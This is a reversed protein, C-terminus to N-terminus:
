GPQIVVKAPQGSVTGPGAQAGTAGAPGTGGRSGGGNGKGGSGGGGGPGGSGPPGGAGGNGPPVVQPLGGQLLKALDGAPVTVVINGSANVANGGPGGPGGTGGTGGQAGSGGGNGTCGCTRGDGGNGGQGGDGGPGGPQGNGGTGSRTAVIVQYGTPVTVQRTVTIIAMQSPIGSNGTAGPAGQTGTAGRTGNGGGSGAIGASSCQGPAGSQAQGPTPPKSPAPIAAGTAGLINFDGPAGPSGNRTLTECTFQLPTKYCIVNGGNNMTFDSLVVVRLEGNPTSLDWPASITKPEASATVHVTLPLRVEAAAKDAASIPATGFLHSHVRELLGDDGLDIGELLAALASDRKPDEAGTDLLQRLEDLTHVQVVSEVVGRKADAANIGLRGLRYNLDFM